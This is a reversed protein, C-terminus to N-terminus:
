LLIELIEPQSENSRIKRRDLIGVVLPPPIAIFPRAPQQV